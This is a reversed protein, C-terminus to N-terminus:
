KTHTNSIRSANYGQLSSNGVPERDLGLVGGAVAEAQDPARVAGEEGAGAGRFM